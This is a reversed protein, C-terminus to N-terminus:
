GSFIAIKVGKTKLIQPDHTHPFYWNQRVLETHTAVDWVRGTNEINCYNDQVNAMPKLDYQIPFKKASM